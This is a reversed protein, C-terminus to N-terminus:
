CKTIEGFSLLTSKPSFKEIKNLNTDGLKTKNEELGEEMKKLKKKTTTYDSDKRRLGEIAKSTIILQNNVVRQINSM